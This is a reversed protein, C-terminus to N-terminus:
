RRGKSTAVQNVARGSVARMGAHGETRCDGCGSSPKSPECVDERLVEVSRKLGAECSACEAPKKRCDIENGEIDCFIRPPQAKGEKPVGFSCRGCPRAGDTPIGLFGSGALALSTAIQALYIMTM